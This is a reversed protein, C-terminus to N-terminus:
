RVPVCFGDEEGGGSNWRGSPLLLKVCCGRPDGSFNPVIGWPKCAAEIRQRARLIQVQVRPVRGHRQEEENYCGCDRCLCLVLKSNPCPVWDRDAAESSCVQEECHQITAANRLILRALTVGGHAFSRRGGKRICEEVIVGVFEDRDKQYSM